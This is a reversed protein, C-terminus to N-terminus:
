RRPENQNAVRRQSGEVGLLPSWALKAFPCRAIARRGHLGAAAVGNSSDLLFNPPHYYIKHKTTNSRNMTGSRELAVTALRAQAM